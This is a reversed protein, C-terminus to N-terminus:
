GDEDSKKIANVDMGAVTTGSVVIKGIRTTEEDGQNSAIFISLCNVGQFLPASCACLCQSRDLMKPTGDIAKSQTIQLLM